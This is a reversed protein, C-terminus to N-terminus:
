VALFEALDPWAAPDQALFLHGGNYVHLSADPTRAVIARGNVLPAIDDFRGCGVWTPCDVRHLRDLVDHGRRAQLQLLRGRAQAKTEGGNHALAFGAALASQDPHVSLWESTWRTDALRLLRAAREDAPLDVLRDLPYSALAGGPSTALLALRDLREPFTVAFEQAVMGGFSWGALATRDWGVLDLLGAVDAGVDAMTYPETIPASAGIGRYDFALVDFRAALMGLLPRVSDLTAGSGNCYLLRPGNGLREYYLEVGHCLASPM